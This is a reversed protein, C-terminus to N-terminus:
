VNGTRGENSRFISQREFNRMRPPNMPGESRSPLKLERRGLSFHAFAVEGAMLACLVFIVLFSAIKKAAVM